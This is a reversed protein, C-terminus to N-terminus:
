KLGLITILNEVRADWTHSDLVIQRAAEAKEEAEKQNISYNNVIDALSELNYSSFYEMTDQFCYKLELNHDAVVLARSAAANLVREHLGMLIHTPQVHLVIKSKGIIKVTEFIDARGMYEVNGRIYKKWVENGWVKLNTNALSQVMDIRRQASALYPVLDFFYCYVELDKLDLSYVNSFLEYVYWFPMEPNRITFMLMDEFIKYINPDLKQKLISIEEEVDKVSGMFVLDYIKESDDPKWLEPDVAHYLTLYNMKPLFFKMSLKDVPSVCAFHFNPYYKFKLISHMHTFASDVAWMIHPVGAKLTDHWMDIGNVNFAMTFSPCQNKKFFEVMFDNKIGTRKLANHFGVTFSSLINYEGGEYKNAGYLGVTVDMEM